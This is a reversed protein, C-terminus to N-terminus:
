TRRPRLVRATSASCRSTARTARGTPTRRRHAAQVGEAPRHDARAPRRLLRRLHGPGQDHLLLSRVPRRDEGRDAAGEAARRATRLVGEGGRAAVDPARLRSGALGAGEDESRDGRPRRARVPARRRFRLLLRRRHGPRHRVAHRSVPEDGRRGASAGHQAPVAGAGRPEERHRDPGVRRARASVVLDVLKGDVVGALAAQALRPSIAEAVDSSPRARRCVAVRAM